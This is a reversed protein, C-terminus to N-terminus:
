RYLAKFFISEDKLIDYLDFSVSSSSSSSSSGLDQELFLVRAKGIRYDECSSVLVPKKLKTASIGPLLKGLFAPNNLKIYLGEILRTCLSCPDKKTHVNIGISQIDEIKYDTGQLMRDINAHLVSAYKKDGHPSLLYDIANAETDKLKSYSSMTEGYPSKNVELFTAIRTGFDDRQPPEIVAFRDINGVSSSSFVIPCGRLVLPFFIIFYPQDSAKRVILSIGVVAVNLTVSIFSLPRELKQSAREMDSLQNIMDQIEANRAEFQRQQDLLEECRGNLLQEIQDNPAESSIAARVSDYWEQLAKENEKKAGKGTKARPKSPILAKIRKSEAINKEMIASEQKMLQVRIRIAEIDRKKSIIQAKLTNRQNEVAFSFQREIEALELHALDASFVEGTKQDLPMAGGICFNLSSRWKWLRQRGEAHVRNPDSDIIMANLAACFLCM